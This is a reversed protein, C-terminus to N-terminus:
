FLDWFNYVNEENNGIATWGGDVMLVVGTVFSSEDSAFYLAAYAIDEPKGIRGIVCKKLFSAEGGNKKIKRAVEKGKDDSRGSVVVEAGEKAFIEATTQGIGYTSGVIVAIKDKLRM